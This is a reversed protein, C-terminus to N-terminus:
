FYIFAMFALMSQNGKFTKNSPSTDLNQNNLKNLMNTLGYIYQVRLKFHSFGATAGVSANVNFKSIDSIDKALLSNYGNILYNKQANDKLELKGNYQLMPGADIMLIEKAFKVHFLFQAQVMMLKYELAETASVPLARGMIELNSQSIQMGYSVTYWRHPLELTAALGGIWGKGQKTEFNDTKIDFQTFGGGIGVGNTIPVTGHPRHQAISATVFGIGFAVLITLQRIQM